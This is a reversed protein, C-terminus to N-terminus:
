DVKMLIVKYQGDKASTSNANKITINIKSDTLSIEKIILSGNEIMVDETRDYYVNNDLVMKCVVVTNLKNYGEPYDSEITLSEGSPINSFSGSINKVNNKLIDYVAKAGAATDNTSSENITSVIPLNNTAMTKIIIEVVNNSELSIGVLNIKRTDTDISYENTNLKLGNIYVNVFSNSTYESPLDFSNQSETSIHIISNENFHSSQGITALWDNETGIFGNQVAVEYASYGRAGKWGLTGKLTTNSGILSM